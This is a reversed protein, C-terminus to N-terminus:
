PATAEIISDALGLAAALTMDKLTLRSIADVIRRHSEEADAWTAYRGQADGYVSEGGPKLTSAMTEFLAGNMLGSGPHPIVLFVTSLALEGTKMEWVNKGVRRNDIDWLGELSISTPAVSKDPLLRYASMPYETTM